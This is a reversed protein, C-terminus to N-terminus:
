FTPFIQGDFGSASGIGDRTFLNQPQSLKQAHTQQAFHCSLYLSYKRLFQLMITPWWGCGTGSIASGDRTVNSFTNGFCLPRRLATHVVTTRELGFCLHFRRPSKSLRYVSACPAMGIM